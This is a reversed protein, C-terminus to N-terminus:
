IRPPEGHGPESFLSSKSPTAVILVSRMQSRHPAVAMVDSEDETGLRTADGDLEQALPTNLPWTKLGKGFSYTNAFSQSDAHERTMLNCTFNLLKRLLTLNSHVASGDANHNVVQFTDFGEDLVMADYCGFFDFMIRTIGELTNGVRGSLGGSALCVISDEHSGFVGFPYVNHPFFIEVKDNSVDDVYKRFFGRQSPSDAVEKFHRHRLTNRLDDWDVSVHNEIRLDVIVASSLAARRENLHKFLQYEGFNIYDVPESEFSGRAKVTPLNFVHRIDQFRDIANSLSLESGREVIPKGSLAFEILPSINKTIQNYQSQSALWEELRELTSHDTIHAAYGNPIRHFALDLWEYASPPRPRISPKWKVFCRYVRSGIPEQPDQDTLLGCLIGQQNPLHSEGLYAVHWPNMTLDGCSQIGIIQWDEGRSEVFHKAHHYLTWTGARQIYPDTTASPKARAVSRSDCVYAVSHPDRMRPATIGDRQIGPGHEFGPTVSLFLAAQETSVKLFGTNFRRSEAM